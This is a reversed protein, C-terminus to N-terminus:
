VIFQRNQRWTLIISKSVVWKEERPLYIVNKNTSQWKNEKKPNLVIDNVWMIAARTTMDKNRAKSFAMSNIEGREQGM